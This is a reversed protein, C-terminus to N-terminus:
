GIARILPMDVLHESLFWIQLENTRLVQSVLLDATGDDGLKTARRAMAKSRFRHNPTRGGLPLDSRSSRGTRTAPTSHANDRGRGCGNCHQNRRPASDTRCDCEGFRSTRRLTQRFASPTSLLTPGAVQWHSKKYIDRLTMTDACSSQAARDNELRM